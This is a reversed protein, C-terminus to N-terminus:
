WIKKHNSSSNQCNDQDTLVLKTADLKLAELARYIRDKLDDDIFKKRTMIFLNQFNATTKKLPDFNLYHPGSICNWVLAYSFYEAFLVNYSPKKPAKFNPYKIRFSATTIPLGRVKKAVARSTIVRGTESLEEVQIRIRFLTRRTINLTYVESKCKVEPEFISPYRAYEFWKDMFLTLNFDGLIPPNPCEGFSMVQGGTLGAM